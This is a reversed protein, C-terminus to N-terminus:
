ASTCGVRSVRCFPADPLIWMTARKAVIRLRKFRFRDQAMLKVGTPPASVLGCTPFHVANSAIAAAWLVNNPHQLRFRCQL